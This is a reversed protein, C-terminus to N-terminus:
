SLGNKKLLIVPQFRMTSMRRRFATPAEFCTTARKMLQFHGRKVQTCRLMASFERFCVTFLCVMSLKSNIGLTHLPCTITITIHLVNIGLHFNIACSHRLHIPPYHVSPLRPDSVSPHSPSLSPTDCSCPLMAEFLQTASLNLQPSPYFSRNPPRLHHCCCITVTRSRTQVAAAVPPHTPTPTSSSSRAPTKSYPPILPYSATIPFSFVSRSSPTSHISQTPCPPPFSLVRHRIPSHRPPLASLRSAHPHHKTHYLYPITYIIIRTCIRRTHSNGDSRLATVRCIHSFSPSSPSSLGNHSM